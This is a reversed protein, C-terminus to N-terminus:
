RDGYRDRYQRYRYDDYRERDYNRDHYFDSNYYDYRSGPSLFSGTRTVNSRMSPFDTMQAGTIPAEYYRYYGQAMAPAALLSLTLVSSAILTKKM